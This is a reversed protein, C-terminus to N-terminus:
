IPSLIIDQPLFEVNEYEMSNVEFKCDRVIKLCM